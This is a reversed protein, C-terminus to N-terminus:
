CPWAHKTPSQMPPFKENTIGSRKNKEDTRERCSASRSQQVPTVLLRQFGGQLIHVPTYTHQIMIVQPIFITASHNRIFRRRSSQFCRHCAFRRVPHTPYRQWVRLMATARGIGGSHLADGQQARYIEVQRRTHNKEHHVHRSIVTSQHWKPELHQPM